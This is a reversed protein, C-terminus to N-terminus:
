AIPPKYSTEKHPPTYPLLNHSLTLEKKFSLLTNGEPHMLAFFHFMGHLKHIDVDGSEELTDGDSIYHTISIENEMNVINIVTDHAIIFSLM